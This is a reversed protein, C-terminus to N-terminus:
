AGASSRNMRNLEDALRLAEELKGAGELERIQRRIDERTKDSAKAELARLCSLAMQPANEETIALDSFTLEAL